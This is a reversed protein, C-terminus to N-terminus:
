GAALPEAGDAAGGLVSFYKAQPHHVVLAATSQEPVFQMSETLAVGIQETAPLLRFLRAQEALDPCAPYGWSYRQGQQPAIRLQERVLAHVYEAMAEATQAAVGHVELELNYQGDQRLREAYESAAEGATVVQFAVVDVQGGEVPRFYDALCLQDENRKTGDPAQRPFTFRLREQLAGPTGPPTGTSAAYAAPDYVVLDNGDAQVPFYGYIARPTLWRQVRASAWLTRLRPELEEDVLRQWEARDHITYKWHHRFLTNRDLHPLLQDLFRWDPALTRHGWFPPAPVPADQVAPSRRVAPVAPAAQRTARKARAREEERQHQVEQQLRALLAERRGPDLLQDVTSLGEFADKCYYVGGGYLTAQQEDVWNIRRGFRRNIAAGGIILPFTLGRHHLEQACLPMQRSTSVLLASLGIADAGVEVAKDLIVNVPVQKGLDYVTYGNNSLITNVLSKGIDHVDGYVTALIVKGKSVGEVKELYQELHAVSRKMVEASQLVYPLILEGAGFKDGVEKMAPLLVGNLVDVAAEHRGAGDAMRRALAADILSEVGEKKRHLIRYHIRADLPLEREAAEAADGAEAEPAVGEFFAIYRALAQPERNFILAEAVERQEPPIEAYPRTHAPNIIALDLGAKVAHYLFVSNLVARAHPAIGFSLNSVGLITFVGPLGAKIRRIGELTEVAANQLEEQGTTIPLTLADFILSDPSLGYEGCVIAHIKQAAELKWAATTAQGREDICLAIARAGHAKMLPVWRDIREARNELNISNLVARGPYTELAAQVVPSETTDIVLPAEVAMALKKVLTRMQDVEDSRETTAVAVDLAHAGGEVQERAIRLLADYDGKIVARKAMRSGTANVREGVILPAPDQRLPFSRLASSIAPVSPVLRERPARGAVGEVLLRIHEPTTGCCGGVVNVGLESVFALLDKAMPEAELPYFDQGDVNQPLGANPICTVPLAAHECLYRIAERMYDPGVGCNLGILDIPLAELSTLAAAVDTGFLMRGSTDLMVQCQIPLRTGTEAFARLMGFITAKTELLDIQTEIIVLDAGGDVFAKTQLYGSEELEAFTAQLAPDDSSPLAGSPGISGAVFRPREPTAFRDAARRACRVANLNIEYTREGLGWETLRRLSGQFTDTELVDAGAALYSAHLDELVEPRTTGLIEHPGRQPNGLYDEDTLLHQRALLGTGMAGDFVLVRRAVEELFRSQLGHRNFQVPVLPPDSSAQSM